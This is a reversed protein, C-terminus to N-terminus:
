GSEGFLKDCTNGGGSQPSPLPAAASPALIRVTGNPHVEVGGVDLGAAQWAALTRRILSETPRAAPM